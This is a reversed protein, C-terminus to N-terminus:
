NKSDDVRDIKLLVVDRGDIAEELNDFVLRYIDKADDRMDVVLTGLIKLGYSAAMVGICYGLAISVLSVVFCIWM